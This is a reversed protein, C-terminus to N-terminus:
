DSEVKEFMYKNKGQASIMETLKPMYGYYAYYVSSSKVNRYIVVGIWVINIAIGLGLAVMNLTFSTRSNTAATAIDGRSLDDRTKCSFIAAAIGLPLCCLIMNMISLGLYDNYTPQPMVVVNPQTTMVMNTCMTPPAMNVTSQAHSYSPCGDPQGPHPKQSLPVGNFDPNYSQQSPYM